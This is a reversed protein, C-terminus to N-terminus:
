YRNGSSGNSHFGGCSRVFALKTLRRQVPQVAAQACLHDIEAAPVHGDFIWWAASQNRFVLRYAGAHANEVDAVHSINADAAAPLGAPRKRRHLVDAHVIRRLQGDALRM